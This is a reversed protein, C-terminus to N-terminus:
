VPVVCLLLLLIGVAHVVRWVVPHPRVMLSDRFQIAGYGIFTFAALIAGSRLREQLSAQAPDLLAFYVIVILILILGLVTRPQYILPFPGDTTPPIFM